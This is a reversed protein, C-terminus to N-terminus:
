LRPLLLSFSLCARPSTLADSDMPVFIPRPRQKRTFAGGVALLREAKFRALPVISAPEVMQSAEDLLLIPYRLANDAQNMIEFECAATTIGVVRTKLLRDKRRRQGKEALEEIARQVHRLVLVSRLSSCTLHACQFRGAVGGARLVISTGKAESM